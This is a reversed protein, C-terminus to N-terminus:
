FLFSVGFVFGVAAASAIAATQKRQYERGLEDCNAYREVYTGKAILGNDFQRQVDRQQQAM